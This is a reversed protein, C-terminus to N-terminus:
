KHVITKAILSNVGVIQGDKRIAGNAGPGSNPTYVDLVELFDSPLNMNEAALTSMILYKDLVEHLLVERGDRTDVFVTDGYVVEFIEIGYLPGRPKEHSLARAQIHSPPIIVVQEGCKVNVAHPTTNLFKSAIEDLNM